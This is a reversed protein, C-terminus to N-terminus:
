QTPKCASARFLKWFERDMDILQRHIISALLDLSLSETHPSSVGRLALPWIRLWLKGLEARHAQARQLIRAQCHAMERLCRLVYPGREGRRQESLLQCLLSLLQVLEKGPVMSPYKSVLVATIQLRLSSFVPKLLHSTVKKFAKQSEYWPIVDFDSQQPQLHDRLVDWGMEIRCRKSAAGHYPRGMQTARHQPQTVELMHADSDVSFLQPLGVCSTLTNFM